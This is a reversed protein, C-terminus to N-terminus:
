DQKPKVPLPTRTSYGSGDLVIQVAKDTKPAYVVPSLLNLTVHEDRHFTVTALVFYSDDTEIGLKEKVDPGAIPHYDPFFLAPNILLFSIHEQEVSQFCYIVDDNEHPIVIFDRLKEFGILGEPFRVLKGADYDVMGFPTSVTKMEPEKRGSDVSGRGTKAFGM